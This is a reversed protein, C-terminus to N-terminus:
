YEYDAQLIEGSALITTLTITDGSITYDSGSQQYAGGRYLRVTGAVPTHALTFITQDGTDTPTEGYVSTTSGGGAPTYPIWRIGDWKISQGLTIGVVDVDQLAWLPGHMGISGGMPAVKRKELRDLIERLHGIADIKLKEDEDFILELKDRIDDATDPPTWAPIQEKVREVILEEDADKGNEIRSIADDVKQVQETSTAAIQELARAVTDSIDQKLATLDVSTNSNLEEYKETLTQSLATFDAGLKEEHAKITDAFSKFAQLVDDKTLLSQLFGAINDLSLQPKNEDM